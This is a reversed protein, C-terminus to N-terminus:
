DCDILTINYDGTIQHSVAIIDAIYTNAPIIVNIKGSLKFAQIALKLADTGNSIGIAYLSETYKAFNQEFEHLYPGDIYSGSLFFDNLRLEVNQKIDLWQKGLDNFAIKM